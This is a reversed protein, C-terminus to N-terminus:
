FNNCKFFIWILIANLNLISTTEAVEKKNFVIQHQPKKIICKLNM